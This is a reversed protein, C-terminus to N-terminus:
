WTMMHQLYYKPRPLLLISDLHRIEALTYPAAAFAYTISPRLCTEIVRQKQTTSTMSWGLHQAQKRIKKMTTQLQHKYNLDMSLEVGLHRLPARPSHYTIPKHQVKITNTLQTRLLEEDYPTKPLTGHLAGTVTTKTNNVILEGWTAYDSLKRAQHKLHSLGEPGGTLINVDDAYTIDSIQYKTQM